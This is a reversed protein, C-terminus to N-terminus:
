YISMFRLHTITLYETIILELSEQLQLCYEREEQRVKDKLLTFLVHNKWTDNWHWYLKGLAQGSRASRLM